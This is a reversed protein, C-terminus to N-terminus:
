PTKMLPRSAAKRMAEIAAAEASGAQGQQDSRMLLNQLNALDYPNGGHGLTSPDRRARRFTRSTRGKASPSGCGGTATGGPPGKMSALRKM